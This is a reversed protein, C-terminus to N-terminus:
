MVTEASRKKVYWICLILNLAAAGVMMIMVSSITDHNLLFTGALSLVLAGIKKAGNLAILMSQQRKLDGSELSISQMFTIYPDRVFAILLYGFCLLLKTYGTDTNWLVTQMFLGAILLVAVIIALRDKFKALKDRMVINSLIRFFYVLTSVISLLMLVYEPKEDVLIYQFNMRAYSLGAGTLATFVAFSTLMLIGSTKRIRKQGEALTRIDEAATITGVSEEEKSVYFSIIAGFLSFVMCLIMPLYAYIRFLFGCILSTLMMALSTASNADSQYAVYQEARKDKVLRNKLLASGMSNLTHAVCKVFGGILIVAFGPALTICAASFFFMVSGVRVAAKNGIRNIFKLLPYQILISFGLSLFTILSVEGATLKKVHVMFLVDCVVWFLLDTELATYLLYYRYFKDGYRTKVSNM